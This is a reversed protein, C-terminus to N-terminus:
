HQLSRITLADGFRCFPIRYDRLLTVYALQGM